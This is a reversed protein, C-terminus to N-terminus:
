CSVRHIRLKRDISRHGLAQRLGAFQHAPLANVGQQHRRGVRVQGLVQRTVPLPALPQRTEMTRDAGQDHGRIKGADPGVATIPLLRGLFELAAANIQDLQLRTLGPWQFPQGLLGGLTANDRDIARDHGHSRCPGQATFQFLTASAQAGVDVQQAADPAVAWAQRVFRDILVQWWLRGDATAFFEGFQTFGKLGTAGVPM